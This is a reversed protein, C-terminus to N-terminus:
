VAWYRMHNHAELDQRAKTIAHKGLRILEALFDDAVRLHVMENETMRRRRIGRILEPAAELLALDDQARPHLPDWLINCFITVVASM